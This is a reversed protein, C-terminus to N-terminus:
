FPVDAQDVDGFLMRSGNFGVTKWSGSSGDRVKLPAIEARDRWNEMNKCWEDFPERGRPNAESPPEPQNQKLWETPVSVGLIVDSAEKLGGGGYIDSDKFRWNGASKQGEKTIQALQIFVADLEKALDKNTMSAHEITKIDNWGDREPQVIRLHDLVFLRVGYRRHAARCEAAYQKATMAGRDLIHIPMADLQRRAQLLAEYDKETFDGTRQRRVSIGTMSALDRYGIQERSMEFSLFLSAHVQSPDLSPSAAHRLIQSTLASKGHGSRAAITVLTGGTLPGIAKDIEAIGTTIGIARRGRSQYAEGAKRLATDAAEGISVAHKARDADDVARLRDEIAVRTEEFSKGQQNAIRGIAVRERERWATLLADVFDTASSVDQAKEVLVLLVAERSGVGEWEEPLTAELLSLSLNRGSQCCNAVASFIDRFHPVTFHEASLIGAIEWYADASGIIKGIVAEEARVNALPNM